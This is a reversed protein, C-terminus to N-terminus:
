FFPSPVPFVQYRWECQCVDLYRNEGICPPHRSVGLHSPLCAAEAPVTSSLHSGTHHPTSSPNPSLTHSPSLHPHPLANHNVWTKGQSSTEGGTVTPGSSYPFHSDTSVPQVSRSDDHHCYEAHDFTHDTNTNVPTPRWRRHIRPFTRPRPVAHSREFLGCKNCVQTCKLCSREVVVRPM